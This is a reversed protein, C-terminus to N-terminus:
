APAEIPVARAVVRLGLSGMAAEIRDLRSAHDLDFLRDVSNRSWNLRRAMEARSIGSKRVARYLDVKLDVLLPTRVVLTHGTRGRPSKERPVDLGARIRAAIAEEIALLGWRRCAAEDEGFSVVEPFAPSTVLFTDNDDPTLEIRYDTM